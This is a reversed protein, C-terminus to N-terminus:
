RILILHSMMTGGVSGPGIANLDEEDYLVKCTPFVHHRIMLKVDELQQIKVKWDQGNWDQIKGQLQDQLQQIFGDM